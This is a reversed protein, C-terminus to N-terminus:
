AGFVRAAAKALGEFVGKLEDWVSRESPDEVVLDPDGADVRNDDLEPCHMSRKEVIEGNQM